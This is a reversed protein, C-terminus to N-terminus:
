IVTFFVPVDSNLKTVKRKHFFVLFNYMCFNFILIIILKNHKVSSM